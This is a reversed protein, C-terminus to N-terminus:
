CLQAKAAGSATVEVYAGTALDLEESAASGVWAGVAAALTRGLVQPYGGEVRVAVGADGGLAAVVLSRGVLGEVGALVADGEDAAAGRVGALLVVAEARDVVEEGCGQCLVRARPGDEDVFGVGRRGRRGVTAGGGAAAQRSTGDHADGDTSDHGNADDDGDHPPASPVCPLAFLSALGGPLRGSLGSVGLHAEDRRRVARRGVVRRATGDRVIGRAAGNGVVVSTLM